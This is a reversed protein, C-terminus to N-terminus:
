VTAGIRKVKERNGCYKQRRYGLNERLEINGGAELYYQKEIGSFTNLSGVQRQWHHWQSM